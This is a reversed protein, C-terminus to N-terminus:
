FGEKVLSTLERKLRERGRRLRSKLTGVSVRAASAAEELRLGEYEFLYLAERQFPPLNRLASNLIESAESSQMASLTAPDYAFTRGELEVEPERERWRSRCNNRAIGLLFTRLSARAPDFRSPHELLALFCEQVVDEASAGDQLVWFAFRYVSDRHRSWLIRFAEEDGRAARSIQERESEM